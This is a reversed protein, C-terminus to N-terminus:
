TTELYPEREPGKPLRWILNEGTGEPLRWILNEGTGEPLRWVVTKLMELIWGDVISIRLLQLMRIIM